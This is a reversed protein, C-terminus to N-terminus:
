DIKRICAIIINFCVISNVVIYVWLLPIYGTIAHCLYMGIVSLVGMINVGNKDEEFLFAYTIFGITVWVWTPNWLNWYLSLYSALFSIGLYISSFFLGAAIKLITNGLNRM